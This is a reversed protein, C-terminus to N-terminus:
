LSELDAKIATKDILSWLIYGHKHASLYINKVRSFGVTCHSPNSGNLAM